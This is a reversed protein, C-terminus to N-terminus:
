RSRRAVIEDLLDALASTAADAVAAARAPDSGHNTVQFKEGYMKRLVGESTGPAQRDIGDLAVITLVQVVTKIAAVEGQLRIIEDDM